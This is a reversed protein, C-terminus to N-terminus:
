RLYALLPVEPNLTTTFCGTTPLTAPNPPALGDYVALLFTQPCRNTSGTKIGFHLHPGTSNGTSDTYGVLRGPAVTGTSVVRSAFHCYIYRVSNADTIVLGTGCSSDNVATVTGAAAAYAPTGTGVPLDIAPYDHHPDDYESRPLVNYDLPLAYQGVVRAGGVLHQWAALDVTTGSSLGRASAFASMADVTAGAYSGGVALRAAYRNLQVQLAAVADGSAGPTLTVVLASWTLPGVVGDASLGNATQFRQVATTTQTGFVGDASIAQGRQRLLYQVTLVQPGQQGSRILPWPPPAAAAPAAGLGFWAVTALVALTFWRKM